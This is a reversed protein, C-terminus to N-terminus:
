KCACGPWYKPIIYYPIALGVILGLWFSFSSGLCLVLVIVVATLWIIYNDLCDSILSRLATEVECREYIEM